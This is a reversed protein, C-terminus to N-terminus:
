GDGRENRRGTAGKCRGQGKSARREPDEGAERGEGGAGASSSRGRRDGVIGDGGGERVRGGGKTPRTTAGAERASGLVSVPPGEMSPGREGPGDLGELGFPVGGDNPEDNGAEPCVGVGGDDAEGVTAANPDLADPDDLRDLPLPPLFDM